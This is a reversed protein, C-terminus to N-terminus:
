MSIFHQTIDINSQAKDLKSFLYSMAPPIDSCCKDWAVRSRANFKVHPHLLIDPSVDEGQLCSQLTGLFMPYSKALLCMLRTPCKM